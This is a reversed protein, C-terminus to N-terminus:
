LDVPQELGLKVVLAAPAWARWRWEAVLKLVLDDVFLVQMAARFVEAMTKQLSTVERCGELSAAEAINTRLPSGLKFM